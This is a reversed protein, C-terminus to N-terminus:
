FCLWCVEQLVTYWDNEDHYVSHTGDITTSEASRLGRAGPSVGSVTSRAESKPCEPNRVVDKSPSSVGQHQDILGKVLDELHEIRRHM